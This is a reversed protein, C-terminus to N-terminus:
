KTHHLIYRASHLKFGAKQYLKQAVINMASTEVYIDYREGYKKTVAILLDTGIGQKRYQSLVGVFFLRSKKEKDFNITAFGAPKGEWFCIALLHARGQCHNKISEMWLKEAKKGPICDDLFFRSWKMDRSLPTFFEPAYTKVFSIETNCERHQVGNFRFILETDIFNAGNKVLRNLIDTLIFSLKITIFAVESNEKLLRDIQDFLRRQDTDKHIISCDILGCSLSLQESDWLLKELMVNDFNNRCGIDFKIDKM